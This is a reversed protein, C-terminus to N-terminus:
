TADWDLDRSGGAEAEGDRGGSKGQEAEWAERASIKAREEAELAAARSLAVRADAAEAAAKEKVAAAMSEAAAAAQSAHAQAASEAEEPSDALSFAGADGETSAAEAAERQRQLQEQRLREASEAVKMREIAKAALRDRMMARNEKVQKSALAIEAVEKAAQAHVEAAEREAKQRMLLPRERNRALEEALDRDGRTARLTHLEKLAGQLAQLPSGRTLFGHHLMKNDDLLGERKRLESVRLALLDEEEATLPEDSPNVFKSFLELINGAAVRRATHDGPVDRVAENLDLTVARQWSLHLQKKEEVEREQEHAPDRWVRKAEDYIKISFPDRPINIINQINPDEPGGGPFEVEEDLEEDGVNFDEENFAFYEEAKVLNLFLTVVFAFAVYRM